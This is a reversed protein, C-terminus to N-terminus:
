LRYGEAIIRLAVIFAKVAQLRNTVLTKGGALRVRTLYIEQDLDAVAPKDPHKIEIAFPIGWAIGTYDAIGTKQFFGGGWRKEWFCCYGLTKLYASVANRLGHENM